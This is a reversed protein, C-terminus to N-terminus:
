PLNKWSGSAASGFNWPTFNSRIWSSRDLHFHVLLGPTSVVGHTEPRILKKNLHTTRCQLDQQNPSDMKHDVIHFYNISGTQNRKSTFTTFYCVSHSNNNNNRIIISNTNNYTQQCKSKGLLFQENVAIVWLVKVKSEWTCICVHQRDAFHFFFCSCPPKVTKKLNLAKLWLQLPDENKSNSPTGKPDWMWM